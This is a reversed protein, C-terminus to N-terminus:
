LSVPKGMVTAILTAIAKCSYNRRKQGPVLKSAAIDVAAAKTLRGVGGTNGLDNFAALFM